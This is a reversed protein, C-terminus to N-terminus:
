ARDTVMEEPYLPSGAPLLKVVEGLLRDIGDSKLASIPVMAAWPHARGWAELVPLFKQKARVRDVKNLALVAPRGAKGVRELVLRDGPEPPGDVILVVEDVESLAALAEGVMFRNLRTRGRGTPRHLGPTDVFVAQAGPVNKVGVIRNRTTQPRPTA